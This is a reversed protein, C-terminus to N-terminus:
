RTIISFNWFISGGIFTVIFYIRGESKEVFRLNSYNYIIINREFTDFWQFERYMKSDDLLINM